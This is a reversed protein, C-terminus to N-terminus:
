SKRQQILYTDVIFISIVGLTYALIDLWDFATGLTMQTMTNKPIEIISHIDILQGAEILYALLLVAIGITLPQIPTLARLFSYMLIVVLYDGFVPRLFTTKFVTAILIEILLLIIVIFFFTKNQIKIM